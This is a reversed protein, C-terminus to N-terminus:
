TVVTGVKESLESTHGVLIGQLVIDKTHIVNFLHGGYVILDDEVIDVSAACVLSITFPKILGWETLVLASDETSFIISITEDITYTMDSLSQYTKSSDYTGPTPRLHRASAGIEAIINVLDEGVIAGNFTTSV